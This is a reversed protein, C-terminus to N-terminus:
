IEPHDKRFIIHSISKYLQFLQDQILSRLKFSLKM